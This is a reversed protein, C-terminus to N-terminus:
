AQILKINRAQAESVFDAPIRTDTVITDISEIPALLVTAVRGFKSNDTVVIVERGAKLIARDTMTEPLYDNTLGQELSIARTGIVIKDVRVEALAQETIHGIFSLESPRLIGGLCVLTIDPLDALTNVVPLSNTIVTLGRRSRLARAVELVTTGSGLFITEGDHILAAAAQGIRLKEDAQEGQRQLMPLEPPAVQLVIAGGHVRQAKGQAALTELDRRATAESVDFTECIKAVTIRQNRAILQVIQNQREVGSLSSNSNMPKTRSGIM